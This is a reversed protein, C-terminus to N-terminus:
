PLSVAVATVGCRCHGLGDRAWRSLQGMRSRGPCVQEPWPQATAYLPVFVKPAKLKAQIDPNDLVAHRPSPRGGNNTVLEVQSM